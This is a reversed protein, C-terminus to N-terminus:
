WVTSPRTVLSPVVHTKYIREEARDRNYAATRQVHEMLRPPPTNMETEHGSEPYLQFIYLDCLM